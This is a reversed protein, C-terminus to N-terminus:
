LVQCFAGGGCAAAVSCLGHGAPLFAAASLGSCRWREGASAWMTLRSVLASAPLRLAAPTIVPMCRVSAHWGGSVALCGRSHAHWGRTRRGCSLPRRRQRRHRQRRQRQSWAQLESQVAAVVAQAMPCQLFIHARTCRPPNAGHCMCAAEPIRDATPTFFLCVFVCVFLCVSLPPCPMAQLGGSCRRPATAAACAGCRLCCSAWPTRRRMM